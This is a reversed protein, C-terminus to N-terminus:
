EVHREGRQENKSEVAATERRRVYRALTSTSPLIKVYSMTKYNNKAMNGAIILPEKGGCSLAM